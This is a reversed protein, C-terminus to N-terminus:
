IQRLVGKVFATWLLAPSVSWFNGCRDTWVHLSHCSFTLRLHTRLHQLSALDSLWEYTAKAKATLLERIAEAKSSFIQNRQTSMVDREYKKRKKKKEKSWLNRQRWQNVKLWGHIAYYLSIDGRHSSSNEVCLHAGTMLFLFIVNLPM